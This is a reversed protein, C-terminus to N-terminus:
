FADRFLGRALLLGRALGPLLGRLLLGLGVFLAVFHEVLGLETLGERGLARALVAVVALERVPQLLKLELLAVVLEAGLGADVPHARAAAGVALAAAELMAAVLIDLNVQLGAVDWAATVCLRRAPVHVRVDLSELLHRPLTGARQAPKAGRM